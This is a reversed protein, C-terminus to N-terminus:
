DPHPSEQGYNNFNITGYNIIVPGSNNVIRESTSSNDTESPVLHFQSFMDSFLRTFEQLLRGLVSEPQRTHMNGNEDDM